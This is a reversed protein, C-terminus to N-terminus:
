GAAPRLQVFAPGEYVVKAGLLSQYFRSSRQLNRVALVVHTLGYTRVM